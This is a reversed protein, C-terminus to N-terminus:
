APELEGVFDQSLAAVSGADRALREFCFTTAGPMGEEGAGSGSWFGNWPVSAPMRASGSCRRGRGARSANTALRAPRLLWRSLKTTIVRAAEPVPEKQPPKREKVRKRYRWSQGNRKGVRACNCSTSCAAIPHCSQWMCSNLAPWRCKIISPGTRYVPEHSHQRTSFSRM